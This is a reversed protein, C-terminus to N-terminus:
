IRYRHWQELSENSLKGISQVSQRCDIQAERWVFKLFCITLFTLWCFSKYFGFSNKGWWFNVKKVGQKLLHELDMPLLKGTTFWDFACIWRCEVHFQSKRTKKKMKRTWGSNAKVSSVSLLWVSISKKRKPELRARWSGINVHAASGTAMVCEFVCVREERACVVVGYARSKEEILTRVGCCCCLGGNWEQQLEVRMTLRSRHEFWWNKQCNSLDGKNKNKLNVWTKVFLDGSSWQHAVKKENMSNLKNEVM